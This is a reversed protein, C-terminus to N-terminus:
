RGGRIVLVNGAAVLGLGAIALMSWRYGELGTSILLAFVPFMVTAYGARATGIRGLLTLYAAFAVVTSVVALFILSGIYTVTPEIVFPKGAVLALFACWLMGYLMGWANMSVIPLGRRQCAASILNGACFCLTGAICLALGILTRDSFGGAGMEPLFMLAIGSFGILGGALVRGSPRERMVLAGLAMNIVSALSFVVSLLGSVLYLAGYYFLLFNSSFILMGLAAFRLHDAVPFVVPRRSLAVWAFMLVTAIAFRWVLNVENPVTGVQLAIAFWSASWAIVTLAYLGYDLPEFARQHPRATASATAGARPAPYLTM